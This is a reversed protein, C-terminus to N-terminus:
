PRHLLANPRRVDFTGRRDDFHDLIRLPIDPSEDGRHQSHSLLCLSVAALLAFSKVVQEVAGKSRLTEAQYWLEETQEVLALLEEVVAPPPREGRRRTVTGPALILLRPGSWEAVSHEERGSRHPKLCALLHYAAVPSWISSLRLLGLLPVGAPIDSFPRRFRDPQVHSRSLCGITM